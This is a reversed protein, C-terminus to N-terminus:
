RRGPNAAARFIRLLGYDYKEGLLERAGTLNGWGARKFAAAIEAQAQDNLLLSLDIKEGSEIATALHGYITGATLGRSTAIQGATEGGRFRRLSERASDGVQSRQAMPVVFSDDAFM